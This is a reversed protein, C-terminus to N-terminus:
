NLAYDLSIIRQTVHQSYILHTITHKHEALGASSRQSQNTGTRALLLSTESQYHLEATPEWNWVCTPWELSWQQRHLQATDLQLNINWSYKTNHKYVTFWFVLLNLSVTM